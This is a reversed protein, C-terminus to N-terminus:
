RIFREMALGRWQGHDKNVTIPKPAMWLYRNGRLIKVELWVKAENKESGPKGYSTEKIYAQQLGGDSFFDILAM